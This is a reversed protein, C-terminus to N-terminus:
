QGPQETQRGVTSGYDRSHGEIRTVHLALKQGAHEVVEDLILVTLLAPVAAGHYNVTGILHVCALYFWNHCRRSPSFSARLAHTFEVINKLPERQPDLKLTGAHLRHAM